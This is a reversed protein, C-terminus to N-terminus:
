KEKGMVSVPAYSYPQNRGVFDLYDARAGPFGIMKWSGAHKNGGHVPDALYGEITNARLFDFFTKADVGIFEPEGRDLQHLVADQDLNSLRAFHNGHLAICLADTEAIGLRYVERPTLRSQYGFQPAAQRFPGQMYWRAAHGFEGEMQRDIFVPVDLEVAGPGNDDSPILRAVAAQIFVWEDASFYRPKHSQHPPEPTESSSTQKPDCATLTVAAPLLAASKFMFRRRSNSPLDASEDNIFHQPNRRM